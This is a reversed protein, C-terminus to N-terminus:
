KVGNQLNVRVKFSDGYTGNMRYSVIYNDRDISYKYFGIQNGLKNKRMEEKAINMLDDETFTDSKMVVFITEHEVAVIRYAPLESQKEKIYGEILNNGDMIEKKIDDINDEMLKMNYQQNFLLFGIFSLVLLILILVILYASKM